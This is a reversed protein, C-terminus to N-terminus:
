LNLMYLQSAKIQEGLTKFKEERGNLLYLLFLYRFSLADVLVVLAVNTCGTAVRRDIDGKKSYGLYNPSAYIGSNVV